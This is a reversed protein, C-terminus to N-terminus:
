NPSEDEEVKPFIKTIRMNKRKSLKKRRKTGHRSRRSILHSTMSQSGLDRYADM